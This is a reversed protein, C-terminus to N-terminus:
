CVITGNICPLHSGLGWIKEIEPDRDPTTDKYSSNICKREQEQFVVAQSFQLGEKPCKNRCHRNGKHIYYTM